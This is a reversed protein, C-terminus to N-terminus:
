FTVTATITDTYTGVPKVGQAPIEGYVTFDQGAADTDSTGGQTTATTNGWVTGYGADQFLQYNITNGNGDSLQRGNIDGTDGGDLAITFDDGSATCDVTLISDATATTEVNEADFTMDGATITCANVIEISVEFDATDTEASALPAVALLAAALATRNLISM